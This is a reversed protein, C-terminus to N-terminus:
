PTSGTQAMSASSNLRCGPRLAKFELIDYFIWIHNLFLVRRVFTTKMRTKTSHDDDRLGVWVSAM